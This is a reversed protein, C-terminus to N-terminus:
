KARDINESGCEPCEYWEDAYTVCGNKRLETGTWGCKRCFHEDDKVRIYGFGDPAPVEILRM